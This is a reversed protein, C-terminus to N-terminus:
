YSILHIEIFFLTIEFSKIGYDDNNWKSLCDLKILLDVNINQKCFRGNVASVTLYKVRIRLLTINTYLNSCNADNTTHRCCQKLNNFMHLFM